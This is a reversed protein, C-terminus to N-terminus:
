GQKSGIPHLVVPCIGIAGTNKLPKPDAFSLMVVVTIGLGFYGVFVLLGRALLLLSISVFGLVIIGGSGRSNLSQVALSMGDHFPLFYAIKGMLAMVFLVLFVVGVLTHIDLKTKRTVLFQWVRPLLGILEGIYFYISALAYLVAEILFNLIKM